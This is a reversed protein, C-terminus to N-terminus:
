GRHVTPLDSRVHFYRVSRIIFGLLLLLIVVSLSLDLLTVSRTSSVALVSRVGWVGLVLGGIGLALDRYDRTAVAIAGSVSIMAVLLISLAVIYAPERFELDLVSVFAYPDTPSRVQDPPIPTPQSMDLGEVLNQITIVSNGDFQRASVERPAEGASTSIVSAGLWLRYRDLPYMTIAGDVPLTFRQSFMIVDPMLTVTQVPPVGRRSVANKDLAYFSVDIRPCQGPTCRRNGSIDLTAMGADRDIDLVSVVIFNVDEESIEEPREALREGTIGDYLVRGQRWILESFVSRFIFPLMGATALALALSVILGFRNIGRKGTGESPDGNVM